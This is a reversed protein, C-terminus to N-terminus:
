REKPTDNLENWLEVESLYPRFHLNYGHRKALEAVQPLLFACDIDGKPFKAVKLLATAVGRRQYIPKVTIWAIAPNSGPSNAQRNPIIFPTHRYLMFGLIENDDFGSAAVSLKWNPSRRFQELKDILTHPPTRYGYVSDPNKIYHNAFSVFLLPWDTDRSDRVIVPSSVAANVNNGM